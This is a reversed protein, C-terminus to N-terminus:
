QETEIEQEVSQVKMIPGGSKLQVKEGILFKGM